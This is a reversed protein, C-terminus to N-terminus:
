KRCLLYARALRLQASANGPQDRLIQEDLGLERSCDRSNKAEDAQVTLNQHSAPRPLFGHARPPIFALTALACLSFIFYWASPPVWPSCATRPRLQDSTEMNM